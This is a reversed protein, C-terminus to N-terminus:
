GRGMQSEDGGDKITSVRVEPKGIDENKMRVPRGSIGNDMWQAGRGDEVRRGSRRLAQEHGAEADLRVIM